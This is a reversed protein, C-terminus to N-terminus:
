DFTGRTECFLGVCEQFASSTALAEYDILTANDSAFRDVMQGLLMRTEAEVVAAVRVPGDWENKVNLVSGAEDEQAVFRFM